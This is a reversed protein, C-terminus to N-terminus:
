LIVLRNTDNLIESQTSGILLEMRAFQKETVTLIQILGEPPKNKRINERVNEAATANLVLKSYVSEQMMIFGSKVLHKRFKTYQKRQQSSLVPLDFFVLIRMFRFSM